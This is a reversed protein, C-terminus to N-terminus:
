PSRMVEVQVQRVRGHWRCLVQVFTYFVVILVCICECTCTCHVATSPYPYRYLYRPSPASAPSSGFALKSRTTRQLSIFLSSFAGLGFRVSHKLELSTADFCLLSSACAIFISNSNLNFWMARADILEKHRFPPCIHIVNMIHICAFHLYVHVLVVKYM